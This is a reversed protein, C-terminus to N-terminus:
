PLIVGSRAAVWREAQALEAATLIRTYILLAKQCNGTTNVGGTAWRLLQSLPAGFGTAGSPTTAVVLGNRRLERTNSVWSHVYSGAGPVTGDSRMTSTGNALVTGTHLMVYPSSGAGSGVAVNTGSGAYVQGAIYTASAVAITSLLDYYGVGNGDLGVSPGGWTTRNGGTLQNARLVGDIDYIEAVVTGASGSTLRNGSGDALLQPNTYDLALAYGNPPRLNSGFLLGSSGLSKFERPGATTALPSFSIM